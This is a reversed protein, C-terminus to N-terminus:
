LEKGKSPMIDRELEAFVSMLNLSARGFPTSTDVSETISLFDIKLKKLENMINKFVWVNRAMRDIRYVVVADFRGERADELLKKLAPRENISSVGSYGIDEYVHHRGDVIYGQTICFQRLDDRQNDPYYHRTDYYRADELIEDSSVRIYLAVRKQKKNTSKMIKNTLKTLLKLPTFKITKYDKYPFIFSYFETDV